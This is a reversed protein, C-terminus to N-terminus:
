VGAMLGFFTYDRPLDWGHQKYSENESYKQM